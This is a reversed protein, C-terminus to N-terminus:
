IQVTMHNSVLMVGRVGQAFRTVLSKEEESSAERTTVIVGDNATDAEHNELQARLIAATKKM